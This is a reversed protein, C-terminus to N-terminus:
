VGYDQSHIVCSAMDYLRQCRDPESQVLAICGDIVKRTTRDTTRFIEDGDLDGNPKVFNLKTYLCNLFCKFNSSNSFKFEEFYQVVEEENVQTEQFCEPHQYAMTEFKLFVEKTSVNSVFGYGVPLGVSFLLLLTKIMTTFLPYGPGIQDCNEYLFLYILNM